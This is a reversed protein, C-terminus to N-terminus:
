TGPLWLKSEGQSAPQSQGPLIIGGSSQEKAAQREAASSLIKMGLDDGGRMSQQSQYYAQLQQFFAALEPDTPYKKAAQMLYEQAKGESELLRLLDVKFMVMRGVPRKADANLQELKEVYALKNYLDPDLELLINYAALQGHLSKDERRIIECALNYMLRSIGKSISLQVLGVLLSDSVKTYDLRLLELYSAMVFQSEDSPVTKAPQEIDLRQYIQSISEDPVVLQTSGELHLLLAKLDARKREDGAAQIPTQGDLLKQPLNLFEEVLLRGREQISVWPKERNDVFRNRGLFDVYSQNHDPVEAIPKSIALLAIVKDILERNPLYDTGMFLVRAPKDTQKGYVAVLGVFSYLKGNESESSNFIQFVRKAPVEDGVIAGMFAKSEEMDDARSEEMATLAEIIAEDSDIEGYVTTSAVELPKQEFEWALLRFILRQQESVDNLESLKKATAIAPWRELQSIQARLLHSLPGAQSPYDRLISQVKKECQEFRFASALASVEQLREEWPSSAPSDVIPSASKCALHITPDRMVSQGPDQSTSKEHLEGWLGIMGISDSARMRNVLSHVAFLAHSSLSERSEAMGELLYRAQTELPEEQLSAAMSRFILALPNDPKLKLFRNTTEVFQPLEQMVLNLEAKLALLWSANPIKNLLANIRELAALEQNGDMLKLIKELDAANDVAGCKCFKFKKGSGCVCPQYQDISTM